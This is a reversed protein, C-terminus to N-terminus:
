NAELLKSTRSIQTITRQSIKRFVGEPATMKDLPCIKLIAKTSHHKTPQNTANNYTVIEFLKPLTLFTDGSLYGFNTWQIFFCGHVFESIARKWGTFVALKGGPLFRTGPLGPQECGPDACDVLPRLRRCSKERFTDM